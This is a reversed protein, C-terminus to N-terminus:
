SDFIRICAQAPTRCVACVSIDIQLSCRECVVKHGCPIYAHTREGDMCIVCDRATATATASSQTPKSGVAAAGADGPVTPVSSSGSSGNVEAAGGPGMGPWNIGFPRMFSSDNPKDPKPEPKEPSQQQQQQQQHQSVASSSNSTGCGGSGVLDGGM